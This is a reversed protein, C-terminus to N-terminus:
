LSFMTLLFVSACHSCFFVIDVFSVCVCLYMYVVYYSIIVVDNYLCVYM